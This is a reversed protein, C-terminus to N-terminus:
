RSDSMFIPHYRLRTEGGLLRLELYQLEYDMSDEIRRRLIGFRLGLNKRNALLEWAFSSDQIVCSVCSARVEWPCPQLFTCQDEDALVRCSIPICVRVNWSERVCLWLKSDLTTLLLWSSRHGHCRGHPLRSQIKTSTSCWVSNCLWVQVNIAGMRSFGHLREYRVVAVENKIRRKSKGRKKSNM